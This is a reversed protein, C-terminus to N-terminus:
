GEGLQIFSPPKTPYFIKVICPGHAKVGFNDMCNVFCFVTAFVVDHM